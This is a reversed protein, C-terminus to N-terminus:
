EYSTEKVITPNEMFVGPSTFFSEKTLVFADNIWIYNYKFFGLPSEKNLGPIMKTCSIEANGTQSTTLNVQTFWNSPKFLSLNPNESYLDSKFDVTFNTSHDLINFHDPSTFSIKFNNETHSQDTMTNLLTMFRNNQSRLILYAWREDVPNQITAEPEYYNLKISLASQGEELQIVQVDEPYALEPLDLDWEENTTKIKLQLIDSLRYSIDLQEPDEDAYWQVQLTSLNLYEKQSSIEEVTSLNGQQIDNPIREEQGPDNNMEQGCGVLIIMLLTIILYVKGSM